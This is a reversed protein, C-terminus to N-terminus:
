CDVPHVRPQKMLKGNKKLKGFAKRKKAANQANAAIVVM